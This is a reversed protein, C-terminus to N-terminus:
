SNRNIYMGLIPTVMDNNTFYAKLHLSLFNDLYPKISTAERQQTRIKILISNKNDLAINNLNEITEQIFSLFNLKKFPM